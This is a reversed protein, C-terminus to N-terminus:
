HEHEIEHGTSLGTWAEISVRDMGRDKDSSHGLRDMVKDRDIVTDRDLTWTWTGRWTQTRTGPEARTETRTGAIDL